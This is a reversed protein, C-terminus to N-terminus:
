QVANLPCAEDIANCFKVSLSGLLELYVYTYHVVLSAHM